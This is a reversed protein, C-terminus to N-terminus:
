PPKIKLKRMNTDMGANLFIAFRFQVSYINMRFERRFREAGFRHITTVM